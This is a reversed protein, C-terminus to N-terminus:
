DYEDHQRESSTYQQDILSGPSQWSYTVFCVAAILILMALWAHNHKALDPGRGPVRGTLMPRILNQRRLLSGLLVLGLHLAILALMLNAMLEHSEAIWEPGDLNSFYGSLTLPIINLWLLVVLLAMLGQQLPKLCQTLGQQRERWFLLGSLPAVRKLWNSLRAQRPGLLGYLLRFLLLGALTYGLTIHLARWHESEATLWAGAFALSSLCHFMRIPADIVRRTNTEQVPQPTLTCDAEPNM